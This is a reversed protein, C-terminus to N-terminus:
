MSKLLREIRITEYISISYGLIEDMKVLTKVGNVGFFAFWKKFLAHYIEERPTNSNSYYKAIRPPYNPSFLNRYKPKLKKSELRKPNEILENVSALQNSSLKFTYGYFPDLLVYKNEIKVECVSHHSINDKGFLFILRGKYGNLYVLHLLLDSQEDCFANGHILTEYSSANKYQLNTSPEKVNSHIYSNLQNLYDTSNIANDAIKKSITYCIIFSKNIKGAFYLIPLSIYFFVFLSLLFLFFRKFLNM